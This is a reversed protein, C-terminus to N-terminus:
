TNLLECKLKYLAAPLKLLIFIFLILAHIMFVLRASFFYLIIYTFGIGIIKGINNFVDNMAMIRAIFDKRATIQLQTDLLISSLSLAVGEILQLMCIKPLSDIIGYCFWIMSVILASLYIFFIGLRNKNNFWVAVFMAIFNAGYFISMMMGWTKSTVQLVDFAFPYFTINVSAMGLSIVTGTFIMEKIIRYEKQQNNIKWLSFKYRKNFSIKKNQIAHTNLQIMLIIIASIFFSASSILFIIRMGCVTIIASAIISGCISIAGSIGTIISNGIAIEKHTLINTMMKKYSPHYLVELISFIIMLIYIETLHSSKVFLISAFGRICNLIFLVKKEYFRDGIIGAIPSLFISVVPTCAVGFGASLGSGTIKVLLTTVAIFQFIVGMSLMGHIISYLLFDKNRFFLNFSVNKYLM